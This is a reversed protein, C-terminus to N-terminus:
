VKVGTLGYRRRATEAFTIFEDKGMRQFRFDRALHEELTKRLRNRDSVSDAMTQISAIIQERDTVVLHDLLWFLGALFAVGGVCALWKRRRTRWWLALFFVAAAGLVVYLQWPGEFIWSM